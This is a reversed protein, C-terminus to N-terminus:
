GRLLARFLCILLFELLDRATQREGELQRVKRSGLRVSSGPTTAPATGGGPLACRREHTYGAPVACMATISSRAPSSERRGPMPRFVASLNVYWRNRRGGSSTFRSARASSLTASRTRGHPM